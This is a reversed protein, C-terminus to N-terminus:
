SQGEEDDNASVGQGAMGCRATELVVCRVLDEITRGRMAPSITRTTHCADDARTLWQHPYCWRHWIDVYNAHGSRGMAEAIRPFSHGCLRCAITYVIRAVVQGGSRGKGCLEVLQVGCVDATRCLLREPTIDAPRMGAILAHLDDNSTKKTM